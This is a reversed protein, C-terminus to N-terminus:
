CCLSRWMWGRARLARPRPAAGSYVVARDGGGLWRAPVALLVWFALVGGLLLLLRRTVAREAGLPFNPGRGPTGEAPRAPEGTSGPGRDPGPGGGRDAGLPGM